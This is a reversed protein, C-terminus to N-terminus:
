SRAACLAPEIPLHVTPASAATRAARVLVDARHAWDHERTTRTRGAAGVHELLRCDALALRLHEAAEAPERFSLLEPEAGDLRFFSDLDARHRVLAPTGSGTIELVKPNLGVDDQYRMVNLAVKSRAYWLALEHYPVSGAAHGRVPWGQRQWQTYGDGIFVTHFQRSLYAATFPRQWSEIERVASTAEAWVVGLNGVSLLQDAFQGALNSAGAAAKFKDLMPRDPDALQEQVWAAALADASAADADPMTGRIISTLRGHVRAAQDRRIAGVDPRSCTLQELMFPSPPPDGPGANVALDFQPQVGRWPSFTTTDVGYPLTHTRRLGLIAAMEEATGRNNVLHVHPPDAFRSRDLAPLLRGGYAWFPADLWFHLIPVDLGALASTTRGETRDWPLLMLPDVWLTIIADCSRASVTRCLHSLYTQQLERAPSDARGGAAQTRRQHEVVFFTIDEFLVDHGASQLGRLLDCFISRANTGPPVLALFRVDSIDVGTAQRM